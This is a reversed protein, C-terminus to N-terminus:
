KLIKHFDNWAWNTQKKNHKITKNQKEYWCKGQKGRWCKHRHLEFIDWEKIKM